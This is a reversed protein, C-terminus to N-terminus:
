PKAEVSLSFLAPAQPFSVINNLINGLPIATFQNTVNFGYNLIDSDSVELFEVEIMVEPRWSILQNLLAQAPLARSIRDRIIIQNQTPDFALKDVNTAQKVAQALETLEQTTLVSPVPVSIVITQELDNRKAPTDQAVMFLRSSLPIVFSNTLAELDHLAERYDIGRLQLRIRPGAPPYDGDYVTEIGFRQAVQDFLNRATGTLDFDQTGPRANLQPPSQPHRAGAYERATLSDFVDEPTLAPSPLDSDDDSADAPPVPKSEIAARSQLAEMKQKLKKNSPQLASAESYLLYADAAKRSKAAKKAKKALAAAQEKPSDEQGSSALVPASAFLWGAMLGAFVRRSQSRPSM